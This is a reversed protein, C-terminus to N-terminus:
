EVGILLSQQELFKNSREVLTRVHVIDKNVSDRVKDSPVQNDLPRAFQNFLHEFNPPMFFTANSHYSQINLYDNLGVFDYDSFVIIEDASFLSADELGIRGYKHAFLVSDGFILEAKLFVDKNEVICLRETKVSHTEASFLGFDRTYTTIDVNIDNIYTSSVNGRFFFVPSSKVRLVKSNKFRNVLDVKSLPGEKDVEKFRNHFFSEFESVRASNLIYKSGRGSKEKLIIANPTENYLSNFTSSSQISKPVSAVGVESDRLLKRYFEFETLSSM